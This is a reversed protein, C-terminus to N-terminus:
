WCWYGFGWWEMKWWVVLGWWVSGMGRGGGFDMGKETGFGYGCGWGGVEVWFQVWGCVVTVGGVEWELGLVSGRRGRYEREGFGGGGDGM